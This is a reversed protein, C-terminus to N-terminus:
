YPQLDYAAQLGHILGEVVSHDSSHFGWSTGLGPRELLAYAGAESIWLIFRHRSLREDGEIFVPALAAHSEFAGRRGILHVRTGLEMVQDRDLGQAIPM